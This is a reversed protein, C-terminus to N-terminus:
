RSAPLTGAVDSPTDVEVPANPDSVEVDFAFRGGVYEGLRARLSEPVRSRFSLRVRLRRLLGDEHGSWLDVKSEDVAERLKAASTDSLDPVAAGTKRAATFIDRLATAADLEATVHDTRMGDVSGGDDVRPSELWRGLPLDVGGRTAQAASARLAEGQDADLAYVGQGADVFARKGDAIFTAGGEREGAIQTYRLRAAPLAGGADLAVPGDLAFGARGSAAGDRPELVLRLHLTASKITAMRSATRQLVQEASPRGGAGCGALVLALAATSALPRRM